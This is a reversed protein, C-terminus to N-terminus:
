CNGVLQSNSFVIYFFYTTDASKQIVGNENRKLANEKLWCGTREVGQLESDSLEPALSSKLVLVQPTLFEYEKEVASSQSTFIFLLLTLLIMVVAIKPLHKKM